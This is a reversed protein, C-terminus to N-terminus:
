NEGTKQEKEEQDAAEKLLEEVLSLPLGRKDWKRQIHFRAVPSARLMEKLYEDLLPLVKEKTFDKLQCEEWITQIKSVVNAQKEWAEFCAKREMIAIKEKKRAEQYSSMLDEKIKIEAKLKTLLPHEKSSDQHEPM